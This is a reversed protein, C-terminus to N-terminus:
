NESRPIQSIREVQFNVKKGDTFIRQVLKIIEKRGSKKGNEIVSNNKHHDRSNVSSNRLKKGRESDM